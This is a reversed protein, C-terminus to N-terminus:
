DGLSLSRTNSPIYVNIKHKNLLIVGRLSDVHLRLVRYLCLLSCMKTLPLAFYFVLITIDKAQSDTTDTSSPFELDFDWFGIVVIDYAILTVLFVGFSLIQHRMQRENLILDRNGRVSRQIRRAANLLFYM